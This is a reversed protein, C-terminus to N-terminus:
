RIVEQLRALRVQGNGDFEPTALSAQGWARASVLWVPIYAAGQAAKAEITELEDLRKRGRSRDSQKLAQELGPATWFSGSIAAEGRECVSGKSVKCSLLPALYAEPDPYPGRWDLMVAAFTGDGLQRYVTTSEM